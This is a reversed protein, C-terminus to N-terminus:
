AQTLSVVVLNTYRDSVDSVEWWPEGARDLARVMDGKRIAPGAYMSRALFLEAQGASLRTRFESGIGISNSDNGGTHFAESRLTMAPRGPDAAGNKMFSLRINEGFSAAIKGDVAAELVRWDVMM